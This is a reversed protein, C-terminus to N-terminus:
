EILVDLAERRHYSLSQGTSLGRFHVPRLGTLGGVLGAPKATYICLDPARIGGDWKIVKEEKATQRVQRKVQLAGADGVRFVRTPLKSLLEVARRKAQQAPHAYRMVMKVSRHRM